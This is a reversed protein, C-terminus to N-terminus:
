GRRAAVYDYQSLTTWASVTKRFDVFAAHAKRSAADAQAADGVVQESAVRLQKLMTDPFRRLQVKHKGVLVALAESNRATFEALVEGNVAQAAAAVVAQLHKPLADFAQKNVVVELATGPEQWGPHYYYKATRYFGFALDNYPGVWETADITGAELATLIEDGPLMQPTVGVAALVEGGLGPIRMKLGKIDELSNIERNFWGGMQTDTNGALFPKLNFEAYLDDSLKQGGGHYMWANIEQATLGFPVSSFFQAAPLRNSWYYGTGHGMEVTGAATADFVEFPPVIENAGYVTVQLQGGSMANIHAALRSASTGLGPFDKPWATALRWSIDARSAAAPAASKARKDRGCSAVGLSAAGAVLGGIFKRREM